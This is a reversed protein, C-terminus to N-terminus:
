QPIILLADSFYVRGHNSVTSAGPNKQFMQKKKLISKPFKRRPYSKSWNYVKNKQYDSTDRNFKAKKVSTIEDEVKQLNNDMKEKAEM